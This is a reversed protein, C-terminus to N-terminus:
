GRSKIFTETQEANPDVRLRTGSTSSSPRISPPGPHVSEPQTQWQTLDADTIALQLTARALEELTSAGCKRLVQRVQSKLTNESVGLEDALTKRTIGALAAILLEVDRPNLRNRQSMEDVAWGIRQDEVREFSVARRMFGRLASRHTPKCHYEARLAHAGNILEPDTRSTLVLIPLLPRQKRAISALHLGSGSPLEAELIMAVLRRRSELIASAEPADTVVDTARFERCATAVVEATDLDPDVILFRGLVAKMLKGCDRWGPPRSIHTLDFLDGRPTFPIGADTPSKAERSRPNVSM